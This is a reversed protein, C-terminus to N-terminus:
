DVGKKKLLKKTNKFNSLYWIKFNLNQTSSNLLSHGTSTCSRSILHSCEKEM